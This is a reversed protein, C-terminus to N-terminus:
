RKEEAQAIFVKEAPGFRLEASEEGGGLVRLETREIEEGPHPEVMQINEVKQLRAKVAESLAAREAETGVPGEFLVTGKADKVTLRKAGEGSILEVVGDDDSFVVNGRSLNMMRVVAGDGESRWRFGHGNKMEEREMKLSEVLRKVEEPSINGHLDKLKEQLEDMRGHFEHMEVDPAHLEMVHARHPKREGLKVTATQEKGGRLFTLEVETGPDNSRVLVGLQDSSVLLQDGMKTLIDHKQLVAAAATEKVVRQVVLGIGRPLGLQERLTTSVRATEVGLFAYPEAPEDDDSSYNVVVHSTHKVDAPAEADSTVFVRVNKSEGEEDAALLRGGSCLLLSAAILPILKKTNM